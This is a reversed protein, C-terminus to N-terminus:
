PSTVKLFSNLMEARSGNGNDCVSIKVYGDAAEARLLIHLPLNTNTAHYFCNEVLPQLTMLPIHVNQLQLPIDNCFSFNDQYRLRQITLYKELFALEEQLTVTDLDFRISYKLIDALTTAMQSVAEQENCLAICNISDLTNYIFHPNIQAQMAHLEAQRQCDMRYQTEEILRRIRTLQENYSRYLLGIEDDSNVAQCPIEIITSSDFSRMTEALQVVPLTFHKSIQRSLLLSLTLLVFFVLLTLRILGDLHSLIDSQPIIALLRWDRYLDAQTVWVKTKNDTVEHMSQNSGLGTLQTPLPSGTPYQEPNTSVLVTNETSFILTTNPTIKASRLLNEIHQIKVAFVVVGIGDHYKPVGTNVNRQQNAFFIYPADPLSFTYLQGNRQLAQWYWPTKQLHASGSIAAYGDSFNDLTNAPLSCAIEYQEDVFLISNYEIGSATIPASTYAYFREHVANLRNANENESVPDSELIQPILKDGSLYYVVQKLESLLNEMSVACQAIINLQNDKVQEVLVASFYGYLLTTLLTMAVLLALAISLFLRRTLSKRM